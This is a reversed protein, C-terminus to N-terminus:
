DDFPEAGRRETGPPCVLPPLGAIPRQLAPKNVLPASASPRREIRENAYRGRHREAPVFGGPQGPVVGASGDDRQVLNPHIAKHALVVLFPRATSDRLFDLVQDTLVDTVYGKTPTRTGDLNLM